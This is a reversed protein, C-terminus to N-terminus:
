SGRLDNGVGVRGTFSFRRLARFAGLTAASRTAEQHKAYGRNQHLPNGLALLTRRSRLQRYEATRTKRLSLM